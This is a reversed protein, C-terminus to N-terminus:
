TTKKKGFLNNFLSKISSGSNNSNNNNIDNNNTDINTNDNESGYIQDTQDTQDFNSEVGFLQNIAQEIDKDTTDNKNYINKDIKFRNNLINKINNYENKKPKVPKKGGKGIIIPEDFDGEFNKFDFSNNNFFNERRKIIEPEISLAVRFLDQINNINSFTIVEGDAKQFSLNKLTKDRKIEDNLFAVTKNDIGNKLSRDIAKLTESFQYRKFDEISAIENLKKVQENFNEIPMYVADFISLGKDLANIIVQNEMNHTYYVTSGSYLPEPHFEPSRLTYNKGDIKVRYPESTNIAKRKHTYIKTGNEGNTLYYPAIKAMEKEFEEQDKLSLENITRPFLVNKDKLEERKKQIFLKSAQDRSDIYIKNAVRFMANEISNITVIDNYEDKFYNDIFKNLSKKIKNRSKNDIKLNSWNDTIDIGVLDKLAEKQTRSMNKYNNMIEFVIHNVMANKISGALAGYLFTMLAPKFMSRLARIPKSQEDLLNNTNLIVQILKKFKSSDPLETFAKAMENYPDLADIKQDISFINLGELKKLINNAFPYQLLKHFLASNKADSEIYIDTQFNGIGNKIYKGYEVLAKYTLSGEENKTIYEFLDFLTLNNDKSLKKIEYNLKTIETQTNQIENLINALEQDNNNDRVNLSTLLDIKDSNNNQRLKNEKNQLIELKRQYAKLAIKKVNVNDSDKLNKDIFRKESFTLPIEKLTNKDIKNEILITALRQLPEFEKKRKKLSNKSNVDIDFGFAQSLANFFNMEKKSGSSKKFTTYGNTESVLARHIKSRQMSFIPNDIMIRMDRFIKYKFFFPRNKSLNKFYRYDEIQKELSNNKAEIKDILEQPMDSSIEQKGEAIKLLEINAKSEFDNFQWEKNNEQKIFNNIQNKDSDSITALSKVVRENDSHNPPEFNILESDKLSKNLTFDTLIMNTEQDIDKFANILNISKARKLRNTPFKVFTIEAFKSDGDKLKNETTKLHEDSYKGSLAKFKKSNMTHTELLGKDVLSEVLIRGIIMKTAHYGTNTDDQSEKIGLSKLARKMFTDIFKNIPIGFEKLEQKLKDSIVDEDKLGLLGKLSSEDYDRLNASNEQMGKILAVMGTALFLEPIKDGFISGLPNEPYLKNTKEQDYKIDQILNAIINKQEKFIKGTLFNKLNKNIKINDKNFKCSM